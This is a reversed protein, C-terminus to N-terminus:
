LVKSVTSLRKLLKTELVIILVAEFNESRDNMGTVKNGQM